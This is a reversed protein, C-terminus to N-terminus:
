IQFSYSLSCFCMLVLADLRASFTYQQALFGVRLCQYVARREDPEERKSQQHLLTHPPLEFCLASSARKIIDSLTDCQCIDEDFQAYDMMQFVTSAERLSIIHTKKVRSIHKFGSRQM